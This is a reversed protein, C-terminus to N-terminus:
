RTYKTTLTVYKSAHVVAAGLVTRRGQLDYRYHTQTVDRTSYIPRWFITGGSGARVTYQGGGTATTSKTTNFGVKANLVEYSVELSGTVTNTVSRSVTCTAVFTTKRPTVQYCPRWVGYTTHAAGVHTVQWLEHPVPRAQAALTGGGVLGLTLVGAALASFRKKM